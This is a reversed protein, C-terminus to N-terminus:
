IDFRVFVKIKKKDQYNQYNKIKHEGAWIVGGNRFKSRYKCEVVFTKKTTGASFCMVLDPNTTTEAYIGDIYKDGAWEMLKFYKRDFKSVIFSEFIDGSEKIKDIIKTEANLSTKALKKSLLEEVLYINEGSKLAKNFIMEKENDTLVGDVVAINILNELEPNILNNIKKNSSPKKESSIHNNNKRISKLHIYIGFLILFIGTIVLLLGIMIVEYVKLKKLAFIFNKLYINRKNLVYNPYFTPNGRRDKWLTVPFQPHGFLNIM